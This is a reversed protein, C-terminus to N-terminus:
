GRRRRDLGQTLFEPRMEFKEIRLQLQGWGVFADLFRHPCQRRSQMGQRWFLLHPDRGIRGQLPVLEALGEFAGTEASFMAPNNDTECAISGTEGKRDLVVSKQLQERRLPMETQWLVSNAM